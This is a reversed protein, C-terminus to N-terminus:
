PIVRNPPEFPIPVIIPNLEENVFVTAKFLKVAVSPEVGKDLKSSAEFPFNYPKVVVPPLEPVPPTNNSYSGVEFM